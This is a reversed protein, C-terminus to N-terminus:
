LKRTKGARIAGAERRKESKTCKHHFRIAAPVFLINNGIFARKQPHSVLVEEVITALPKQLEAEFAGAEPVIQPGQAVILVRQGIEKGLGQIFQRLLAPLIV